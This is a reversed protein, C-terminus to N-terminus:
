HKYVHQGIDLIKLEGDDMTFTARYGGNLRVSFLGKQEHLSEFNWGGNAKLDQVFGVGKQKYLDLFEDMKAQVQAPSKAYGKEAAKRLEVAAARPSAPWAAKPAPPAAVAQPAAQYKSMLSELDGSSPEGKEALKAYDSWFAANDNLGARGIREFVSCDNAGAPLSIALLLILSLMVHRM